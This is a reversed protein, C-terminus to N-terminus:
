IVANRRVHSVLITMDDALEVGGIFMTVESVIHVVMQSASTASSEQIAQELREFGFMEKEENKAEVVGDSVMIVMDDYELPIDVQNYGQFSGLDQGLAFGGVDPWEVTGDKRRIYPPICGANVSSATIQGNIHKTYEVYCLACNQRRAATYRALDGDLLIMRQSPLLDQRLSNDLLTLMMAMLLAASVGKGSVDGVITAFRSSSYDHYRYFDGGVEYAAVTYSAVELNEWTTHSPPLLGRQIERTLALDDEMRQHLAKLNQYATNLEVMRNEVQKELNVNLNELQQNVRQLMENHEAIAQDQEYRRLAETVTLVLDTQEWPKAIYRYLNANNVANTIGETSAQGTLLITVAKPDKNHICKLLEDGKMMPMIYDSIVVALKIDQEALEETIELAEEGDQAIEIYYNGGFQRRLQRKLSTLVIDEDDVCLIAMKNMTNM